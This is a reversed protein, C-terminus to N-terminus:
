GTKGFVGRSKQKEVRLGEVREGILKALLLRGREKKGNCGGGKNIKCRFGTFEITRRL